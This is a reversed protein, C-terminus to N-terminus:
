LALQRVNRLDHARGVRKVSAGNCEGVEPVAAHEVDQHRILAAGQQHVAVGDLWAPVPDLKLELRGYHGAEARALRMPRRDTRADFQMPVALHLRLLDRGRGPEARLVLAADM